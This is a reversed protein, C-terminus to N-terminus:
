ITGIGRDFAQLVDIALVRAIIACNFRSTLDIATSADQARRTKGSTGSDLIRRHGDSKEPHYACRM